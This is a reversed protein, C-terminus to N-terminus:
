PLHNKARESITNHALAGQRVKTYLLGTHLTSLFDIIPALRLSGWMSLFYM